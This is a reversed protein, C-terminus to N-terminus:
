ERSGLISDYRRRVVKFMHLYSRETGFDGADRVRQVVTVLSTNIKGIMDEITSSQETSM